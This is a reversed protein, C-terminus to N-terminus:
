SPRPLAELEKVEDPKKIRAYQRSWPEEPFLGEDEFLERAEDTLRYFRLDACCEKESDVVEVIGIDRLDLLRQRIEAPDKPPNAHDLEGLTPANEPHAVIDVILNANETVVAADFAEERDFTDPM